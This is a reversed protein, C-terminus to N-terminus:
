LNRILVVEDIYDGEGYKLLIEEKNLDIKVFGAKEYARVARVNRASPRILYSCINLNKELYNILLQIANSGIGKGSYTSNKLWIDIEAVKQDKDYSYNIHGAVKGMFKIIFSRGLYPKSGDFFYELYDECFENWTPIEHDSFDPPGIMSSTLDSQTLWEYVSKRDNINSPVLEVLNKDM